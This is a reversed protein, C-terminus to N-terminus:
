LYMCTTLYINCNCVKFCFHTKLAKRISSVSSSQRVTLPFDNWYKSASVTFTRDGALTRTVSYTLRLPDNSSRLSRTPTYLNLCTDLYKPAQNNLIKYVFLLLKFIIRQKLLLWHLSNLLPQSPHDRSVQFVLRAAWNKHRQVRDLQTSPISSLLGNCYDIRFLVLSRVANHCASQDIFRRIRAINRLYFTVTSCIHSIHHSMSMRHDFIVGLNRITESPSILTSGVNLQVNPRNRLNHASSSVFFYTKSDNLKLKNAVMWKRINSICTQLKSLANNLAGPTMPDFSVYLQIDDAYLHYNIDYHCAIEGVPLTYIAYGIPGVISGQPLGFEVTTPNSM